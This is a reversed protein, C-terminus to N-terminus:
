LDSQCIRAVTNLPLIYILITYVLLVVYFLNNTEKVKMMEASVKKLLPIDCISPDFNVISFISENEIRYPMPYTRMDKAMWVSVFDLEM